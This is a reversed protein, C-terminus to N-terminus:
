INTPKTNQFLLLCFFSFACCKGFYNTSERYSCLIATHVLIWDAGDVISGLLDMIEVLINNPFIAVPRGTRPFDLAMTIGDMFKPAM